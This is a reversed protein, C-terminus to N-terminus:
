STQEDLTFVISCALLTYIFSLASAKYHSVTGTSFASAMMLIEATVGGVLLSPTM